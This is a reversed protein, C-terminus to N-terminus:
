AVAWSSAIRPARLAVELPQAMVQAIYSMTNGIVAVTPVVLVEQATIHTTITDTTPRMGIITTTITTTTSHTVVGIPRTGVGITGIATVIVMTIHTTATATAM